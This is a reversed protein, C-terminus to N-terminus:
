SLIPPIPAGASAYVMRNFNSATSTAWEACGAGMCGNWRFPVKRSKWISATPFLTCLSKELTDGSEVGAGSREIWEPKHHVLANRLLHLLRIPQGPGKGRDFPGNGAVISILDAKEIPNLQDAGADFSDSLQQAVTQDFGKMNPAHGLRAALMIENTCAEISLYAMLVAALSSDILDGAREIFAAEDLGAADSESDLRKARYMHRSAAATFIVVGLPASKVVPSYGEMQM